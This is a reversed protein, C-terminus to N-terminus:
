RVEGGVFDVGRLGKRTWRYSGIVPDSTAGYLTRPEGATPTYYYQTPLTSTPATPNWGPNANGTRSCLDTVRYRRDMGLIARSNGSRGTQVGDPPPDAFVAGSWLSPSFAVISGVILLFRM